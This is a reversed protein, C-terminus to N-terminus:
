GVLYRVVQPDIAAIRKQMSKPPNKFFRKLDRSKVQYCSVSRKKAKLWGQKIWYIITTPHLCLHKAIESCSYNDLTPRISYGLANLKNAIALETRHFGRRKLRFTIQKVTHTEAMEYLTALEPQTWKISM